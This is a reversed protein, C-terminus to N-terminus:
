GLPPARSTRLRAFRVPAFSSEASQRRIALLLTAAVLCWFPEIIEPVPGSLAACLVAVLCLLAVLRRAPIM